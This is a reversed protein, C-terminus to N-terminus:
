AGVCSTVCGHRVRVITTDAIATTSSTARTETPRRTTPLPQNSLSRAFAIWLAPCWWVADVFDAEGGGAVCALGCRVAGAFGSSVRAWM